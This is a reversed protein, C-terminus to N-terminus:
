EFPELELFDVIQVNRDVIVTWFGQVGQLPLYFLEKQQIDPRKIALLASFRPSSGVPRATQLVVPIAAEFPQWLEIRTALPVGRLADMTVDFQERADKFPRLAVMKPGVKPGENPVQLFSPLKAVPADVARVVTFQNNEFVLYVPRAMSLSWLGYMLAAIQLCGIVVFDFFLARRSKNPACVIFTLLPGVVIDIVVLVGFMKLGGSIKSYPYPYWLLFVVVAAAIAITLSIALHIATARSRTKMMKPVLMNSIQQM